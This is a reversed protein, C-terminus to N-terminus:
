LKHLGRSPAVDLNERNELESGQNGTKGRNMGMGLNRGTASCGTIDAWRLLISGKLSTEEDIVPTISGTRSGYQAYYPDEYTATASPVYGATYARPPITGGREPSSLYGADGHLRDLLM